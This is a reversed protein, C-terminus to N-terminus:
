PMSFLDAVIHGTGGLDDDVLSVAATLVQVPRMLHRQPLVLGGDLVRHLRHCDSERGVCLGVDPM